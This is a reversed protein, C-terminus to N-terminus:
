FSYYEECNWNLQVQKLVVVETNMPSFFDQLVVFFDYMPIVSVM